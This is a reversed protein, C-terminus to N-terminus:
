KTSDSRNPNEAEREDNGVSLFIVFSLTLGVIAAVLFSCAFGQKFISGGTAFDIAVLALVYSCAGQISMSVNKAMPDDIRGRTM